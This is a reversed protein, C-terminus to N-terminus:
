LSMRMGFLMSPVFLILAWVIIACVLVTLLYGLSKEEPVKMLIPLGTYFLYVTYLGLVSLVSLIPIAMFVAAVWAASPAYAAVKMASGFNKKGGFKEALADIVFAVIFVGVFTLIYGGIASVIGAIIGTRYPGVGIISAGIFGCVAPIAALIAVYSKLLAGTDAPEQEIVKWEATPDTLLRRVRAVLDM